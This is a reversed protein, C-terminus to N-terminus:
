DGSERITLWQNGEVNELVQRKGSPWRVSVSAAVSADGLGFYLPLDSQSLYGSKGDMRQTLEKDGLQVTVLAGIGQRNSEVGELSIGLFHIDKQESLNSKLIQPRDNMENTMIDLDGDKDYDFVVSSRSSLSELVRIRGSRGECLPHDRDPGSCLLIFGTQYMQWNPRPEVGLLFEADFFKKGNENLLVSNIGYRYTYGMGASVFVDEFTDANLDGVSVGWPWYTEAGIDNSVEKFSGDEWGMYFVNGFVNNTSGQLFTESWEIGCWPESKSKEFGLSLDTKGAKTQADTMDSHMDTIYLDMRGDLNYDFFKIGMAGWSTKPFYDSIREEFGRGERNIYLLDDGQMNLVYLDEWGDQNVDCISADGTWAYDVLGVAEGVEEFRLGGKNEYLLSREFREPKLHGHFGDQVGRYFGGPGMEDEKTYVGVNTVYIDLQGDHNYDFMVVSSSHGIYEVGAETTIDRFRGGGLNEFLYNGMRVTTVFLDADGDNDLDGFSGTVSVKDELGLGARETINEFTGDGQNRWLENSGLQTMFYVDLYGDQDVDAVVVGCGHDYHVPKWYKGSDETIKHRFDIGSEEPSLHSFSFGHFASYRSAEDEQQRKRLEWFDKETVLETKSEEPEAATQTPHKVGSGDSDTTRAQSQANTQINPEPLSSPTGDSSESNRDPKCATLALSLGCLFATFVPFASVPFKM